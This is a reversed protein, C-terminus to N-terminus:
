WFHPEYDELLKKICTHFKNLDKFYAKDKETIQIYDSLCKLAKAYKKEKNFIEIQAFCNTDIFMMLYLYKNLLKKAEYSINNKLSGKYYSSEGMADEISSIMNTYPHIDTRFVQMLNNILNSTENNM